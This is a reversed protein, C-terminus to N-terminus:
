QLLLRGASAGLTAVVGLVIIQGLIVPAGENDFRGFFWLIFASTVLAIVYTIVVGFLVGYVSRIEDRPQAGRFDSYFLIGGGLLLSVLALGILRAADAEAAIILIEDTPAVNAALLVAGCGAVVAQGGFTRAQQADDTDANTQEQEEGTDASGGLQATGVSVGIAVTMAEIVVRGIIEDFPMEATIRGLLWLAFAAVLLGLGMEEVSDIAVETYSADHRLGAYRNYGLLLVFTVGSYIILRPADFIVGADWVEMAYLLPLSFLLGGVGGRAYERLSENITRATSL